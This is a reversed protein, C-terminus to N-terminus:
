FKFSDLSVLFNMVIADNGEIKFKCEAIAEERTTRGLQMEDLMAKTLTMSADASSV